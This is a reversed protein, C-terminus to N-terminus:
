FKDALSWQLRLLAAAPQGSASRVMFTERAVGPPEPNLAVGHRRLVPWAFHGPPLAFSLLGADARDAHERLFGLLAECVDVASPQACLECVTLRDGDEDFRAYGLMKDGQVCLLLQSKPLLNFLMAYLQWYDPDRDIKGDYNPYEEAYMRALQPLRDEDLSALLRRDFGRSSFNVQSVGAALYEQVVAQFGVGEYVEPLGTLLV